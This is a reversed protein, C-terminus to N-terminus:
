QDHMTPLVGSTAPLPGFGRRQSFSTLIMNRLLAFPLQSGERIAAASATNAAPAPGERAESVGALGSVTVTAEATRGSPVV